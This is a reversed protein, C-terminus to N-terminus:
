LRRRQAALPQLPDVLDLPTVDVAEFAQDLLDRRVPGRGLARGRAIGQETHHVPNVVPIVRRSREIGLPQGLEDRSNEEAANGLGTGRSLSTLPIMAVM